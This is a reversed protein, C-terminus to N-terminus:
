RGNISLSYSLDTVNNIKYVHVMYKKYAEGRFTVVKNPTYTSSTGIHADGTDLRGNKNLDVYVSFDLLYHKNAPTTLSVQYNVDSSHPTFLYVDRRDQLTPFAGSFIFTAGALVTHYGSGVSDNPEPSEPYRFVIAHAPQTLTLVSIASLTALGFSRLQCKM